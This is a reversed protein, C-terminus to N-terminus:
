FSYTNMENVAGFETNYDLTPQNNNKMGVFDHDQDEETDKSAIDEKSHFSSTTTTPIDDQQGLNAPAGFSQYPEENVLVNFPTGDCIIQVEKIFADINTM